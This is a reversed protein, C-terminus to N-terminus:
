RHLPASSRPLITVCHRTSRLSQSGFGLVTSLSGILAIAASWIPKRTRGLEEEPVAALTFIRRGVYYKPSMEVSLPIYWHNRLGNGRLAHDYIRRPVTPWQKEFKAIEQIQTLATNLRGDLGSTDAIILIVSVLALAFHVARLHEVFDKSWHFLGPVTM